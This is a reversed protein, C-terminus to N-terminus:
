AKSYKDLLAHVQAMAEPEYDTARDWFGADALLPHAISLGGFHGNMAVWDPPITGDVITFLAAPVIVLRGFDDVTVFFTLESYRESFGRVSVGLCQYIKGAALDLNTNPEKSLREAVSKEVRGLGLYEVRM